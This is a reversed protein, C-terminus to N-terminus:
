NLEEPKPDPMKEVKPYQRKMETLMGAIVYDASNSDRELDDKSIPAYQQVLMKLLLYTRIPDEEIQKILQTPIWLRM